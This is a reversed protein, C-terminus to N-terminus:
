MDLWEVFTATGDIKGSFSGKAKTAPPTTKLYEDFILQNQYNEELRIWEESNTQLVIIEKFSQSERQKAYEANHPIKTQNYTKLWRLWYNWITLGLVFVEESLPTLIYEDTCDDEAESFINTYYYPQGKFDAIGELIAMDWYNNVSYVNEKM